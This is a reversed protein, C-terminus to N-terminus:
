RDPKTAETKCPKKKLLRRFLGATKPDMDWLPRWGVKAHPHTLKKHRDRRTRLM